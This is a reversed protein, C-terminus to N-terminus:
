VQRTLRNVGWFANDKEHLRWGRKALALRIYRHSMGHGFAAVKQHRMAASELLDAAQLARQKAEVFSEFNGQRGAFWLVRNLVVWHWAKLTFGLRYYPIDMERLLPNEHDIRTVGYTTASLQARKLNSCLIYHESLDRMVRPRSSPDLDSQNYRRVWRAFDSAGMKENTASAPKGHRILIIEQEM